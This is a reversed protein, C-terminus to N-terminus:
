VLFRSGPYIIEEYRYDILLLNDKITVCRKLQEKFEEEYKFYMDVREKVDPLELIEDINHRACYKVLDMMLQYNSIRYDKFRGLVTRSDM